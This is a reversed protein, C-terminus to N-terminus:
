WMPHSWCLLKGLPLDAALAVVGILGRRRQDLVEFLPSKEVVGQHDPAAFEASRDVRLPLQRRVIVAAVVVRAAVGDPQGAAPM